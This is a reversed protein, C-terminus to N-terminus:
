VSSVNQSLYRAILEAYKLPAVHYFISEPDTILLNKMEPQQKLWEVVGLLQNKEEITKNEIDVTATM